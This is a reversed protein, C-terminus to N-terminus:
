QDPPVEFVQSLVRGASDVGSDTLRLGAAALQEAWDRTVVDPFGYTSRLRDIEAWSFVVHTVNQRRLWAVCAAPDAGAAAFELWPDRNFVVTYHCRPLIYFVNARGVLWVHAKPDSIALNLPDTEIMVDQRGVLSAYPVNTRAIWARDEQWLRGFLTASNFLAGALALALPGPIWYKRHHVGRGGPAREVLSDGALLALPVVIPLVFRGPMHTLTAWGLLVLVTWILGFAAIRSRSYLAGLLGLTLLVLGFLSPHFRTRQEVPDRAITGILERGAVRLRGAFSRDADPLQHGRTWQEAQAASWARGGFWSYAFPYVPNGTFVTNRILWPAFSLLIGVSYCILAILRSSRAPHHRKRAGLSVLFWAVGLAAAVFLLATYKCGGALGAYLGALLAARAGGAHDRNRLRVVVVAAAAAAFYLMGNEVYALCGLYPLWPVAGAVMAALVRPWGSPLAVALTLVALVGCMAHLYQAATAASHAGGLLYMLLLYLMEMQQPFSAYVNHPLFIIRGADFYERPAELHYELVDYGRAEDQWLLGPPLSAGFLMVALPGALAVTLLVAATIREALHRRADEVSTPDAPAPRLVIRLLGLAFGGGLLAWAVPGHLLGAVGLALTALALVGLGLAIALCGGLAGRSLEPQPRLAWAVPWTGWGAAAALLAAVYLGDYTLVIWMTPALWTVLGMTAAAICLVPLWRLRALRHQDAPTPQPTDHSM